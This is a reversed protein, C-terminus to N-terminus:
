ESGEVSEVEGDFGALHMAEETGVAGALGRRDAHQEAHQACVAAGGLHEAAIRPVVGDRQMPAHGIHGTIHRQPRVEAPSLREIDEAAQV